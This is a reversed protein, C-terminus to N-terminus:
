LSRAEQEAHLRETLRNWLMSSRNGTRCYALIPKPLADVLAGFADVEAEGIGGPAIPLYRADMGLEFAAVAIADFSPQDAGEGDPRNCIVSRFGANHIAKLDGPAIQRSACFGSSLTSRCQEIARRFCSIAFDIDHETTFRGISVRVTRSAADADLGIATLVHSPTGAASNCASTSSVALAEGLMFPSFGPVHVTLSLTHPIRRAAGANHTIDGLALLGELLRASLSSIRAGDRELEAAALECATGMGVIQHTALTGSRLGREHGGGHMQAAIRGAIESRVFLAGIGKPGYVKHASMSLMDIGLANVDIPTKGLAQAADVHLLAGAAHVIRAISAIDTLTGLENNVLMLSVLGTDPGMAAAVADATIEGDGNPSLYTVAFGRKALNATTDLIAKHEICSTILHRKGTAADAYGKLALNNSETAGSTWIIEDARAGLLVAVEERAREVKARARAGAAHSTSAPNGFVGDVGLCTMMSEIVRSDAPTTAAYDLYHLTDRESM